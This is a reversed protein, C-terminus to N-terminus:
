ARPDLSIPVRDGEGQPTTNVYREVHQLYVEQVKVYQKVQALPLLFSCDRLAKAGVFGKSSRPVLTFDLFGPRQSMIVNLRLNSLMMPGPGRYNELLASDRLDRSEGGMPISVTMTQMGYDYTEYVYVIKGRFKTPIANLRISFVLDQPDVTSCLIPRGRGGLTFVEFKFTPPRADRDKFEAPDLVKGTPNLPTPPFLLGNFLPRRAVPVSAFLGMAMVSISSSSKMTAQESANKMQQPLSSTSRISSFPRLVVGPSELIENDIPQLFAAAQLKPVNMADTLTSTYMVDTSDPMRPSLMMFQPPPGDRPNPEDATSSDPGEGSLNLRYVPMGLQYGVIASTISTDDFVQPADNALAEKIQAVLGTMNLFRAENSEGWVFVARAPPIPTTEPDHVSSKAPVPASFQLTAISQYEHKAGSGPAKTYTRKLSIALKKSDISDGVTFSQQHAPQTMYLEQLGQEGPMRDFLCLLTDEALREHRLIPAGQSAASLSPGFRATVHLDPFNQVLHSRLFFGFTPVQPRYGTERDITRFYDNFAGKLLRRFKDDTRDIHNALSLAGDVFADIWHPDIYFSRLSEDPLWSPEVILYQAPIGFLYMKDMVWSLIIMWDTSNPSNLENFFKFLAGGKENSSGVFHRIKNKIADEASESLHPNDSSLDVPSETPLETRGTVSAPAPVGLEGRAMRGLVEVSTPLFKVAEEKSVRARAKDMVSTKGAELGTAMTAARIRSLATTFVQDSLATTKGLNWATSYTLDMLGIEHDFIQLDQGSFSLSTWSKGLRRRPLSPSLAGRIIAATQEGTQTHYKTLTYGDRLREQIRQAKPSSSKGANEIVEKPPGLVNASSGIARFSEEVNMANAAETTFSWSFLSSLVVYEKEPQALLDRTNVSDWNELSVLHVVARSSKEDVLPGVRHSHVVSYLGDSNGVAEMGQAKSHRVHALYKYRLVDAKDHNSSVSGFEDYPSTLLNFLRKKVFIAKSRAEPDSSSPVPTTSQSIKSFDRVALDLAFDPTLQISKGLRVADKLLDTGELLGKPDNLLDPQIQLEDQSFVLLALWPMRERDDDKGRVDREWPLFPDTFLMHPLTEAQAISGPPPFCSHVVGDPLVYQPAQVTFSKATSRTMNQGDASINHAAEVTHAGGSLAPAFFSYLM